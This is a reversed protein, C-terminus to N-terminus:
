LRVKGAMYINKGSKTELGQPFITETLLSATFLNKKQLDFFYNIHAKLFVSISMNAINKFLPPGLM